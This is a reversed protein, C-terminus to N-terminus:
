RRRTIALALLALVSMFPVSSSGGQCGGGSGGGSSVTPEDHVGAELDSQVMSPDETDLRSDV